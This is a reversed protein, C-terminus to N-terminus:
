KGHTVNQFRWHINASLGKGSNMVENIDKGNLESIVQLSIDYKVEAVCWIWHPFFDLWNKYKCVICNKFQMGQKLTRWRGWNWRQGIHSQHGKSLPQHKWRACGPPLRGRLANQTSLLSVFYCTFLKHALRRTICCLRWTQCLFIISDCGVVWCENWAKM